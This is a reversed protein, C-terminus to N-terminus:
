IRIIMAGQTKDEPNSKSFILVKYGMERLDMDRKLEDVMSDSVEQLCYILVQKSKIDHKIVDLFSRKEEFGKELELYWEVFFPKLIESYLCNRYFDLIIYAAEKTEDDSNNLIDFGEKYSKLLTQYFVTNKNILPDNPPIFVSGCVSLNRTIKSLIKEKILTKFDKGNLTIMSLNDLLRKFENKISNDTLYKDFMKQTLMEYINLPPGSKVSEGFCNFSYIYGYDKLNYSIKGHDSPFSAPPFTIENIIEDDYLAKCDIEQDNTIGEPYIVIFADISAFAPQFMKKFQTTLCRCKGTTSVFESVKFDRNIYINHTLSLDEKDYINLFNTDKKLVANFDGCIIILKSSNQEVINFIIDIEKICKASNSSIHCSILLIEENITIMSSDPISEINSSNSYSLKSSM